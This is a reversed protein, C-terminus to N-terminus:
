LEGALATACSTPTEWVEVAICDFPLGLLEGHLDRLISDALNEATPIWPVVVLKWDHGQLAERMTVDQDWVIFGHDYTDHIAQLCHKMFGFDVLMGAEPTAEHDAHKHGEFTARVKFRHGHPSRCKGLFLHNAM